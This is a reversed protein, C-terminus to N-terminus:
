GGLVADRTVRFTQDSVWWEAGSGGTGRTTGEYVVHWDAQWAPDTLARRVQEELRNAETRTAIQDNARVRYARGGVIRDEVRALDSDRYAETNTTTPATVSVLRHQRASASPLNLRAVVDLDAGQVAALRAEFALYVDDLHTASSVANGLERARLRQSAPWM